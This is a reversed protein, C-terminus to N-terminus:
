PREGKAAQLTHLGFVMGALVAWLVGLTAIWVFDM